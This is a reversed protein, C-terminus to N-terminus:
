DALKIFKINLKKKFTKESFQKANEGMVIVKANDNKGPILELADTLEKTLKSNDESWIQILLLDHNFSQGSFLNKEFNDPVKPTNSIKQAILGDFLYDLDKFHQPIQGLPKDTLWVIGRVDFTVKELM